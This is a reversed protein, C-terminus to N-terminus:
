THIDGRVKDSAVAAALAERASRLDQATTFGSDWLAILECVGSARATDYKAIRQRLATLLVQNM